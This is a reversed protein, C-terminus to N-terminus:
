RQRRAAREARHLGRRARERAEDLLVFARVVFTDNGDEGFLKLLAKNSYVLFSDNGAGGYVTTAYSVGRTLWGRTTLVAAAEDGPAV